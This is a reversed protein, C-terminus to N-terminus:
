SSDLKGAKNMKQTKMNPMPQSNYKILANTSQEEQPLVALPSASRVILLLSHDFLIIKLLVLLKIPLYFPFSVRIAPQLLMKWFSFFYTNIPINKLFDVYLARFSNCLQPYGKIRGYLVNLELPLPDSFTHCNTVPTPPGLAHSTVSNFKKMCVFGLTINIKRYESLIPFLCFGGQVFFVQVFVGQLSM